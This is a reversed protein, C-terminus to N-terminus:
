ADEMVAVLCGQRIQVRPDDLSFATCRLDGRLGEGTLKGRAEKLVWFTLLALRKDVARDYEARETDSLIRDALRLDIQRDLEEADIGVPRDSLVAFAHRPTHTISFHLPETEFCPKGRPLRVIPPLPKGTQGTYLAELLALGAEHGTKEGLVCGAIVMPDRRILFCPLRRDARLTDFFAECLKRGKACLCDSNM